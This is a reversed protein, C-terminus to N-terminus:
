GIKKDSDSLVRSRKRYGNMYVQGKALQINRRELLKRGAQRRSWIAEALLSSAALLLIGLGTAILTQM